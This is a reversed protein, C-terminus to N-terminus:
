DSLCGRLMFWSWSLTKVNAVVENCDARAGGESVIKKM